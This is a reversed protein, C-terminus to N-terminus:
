VLRIHKILDLFYKKSWITLTDDDDIFRKIDQKAMNIDTNAIHEALLKMLSRKTFYTNQSLHGSKQARLSLHRLNLPYNRGIYWELDYWDRGKVRKKWNRFLLAHLKGAYLNDITFCKVYFSFPQLLLKEETDFGLPPDTDVEFKIKIFKHSHNTQLSLIHIDTNSKLFASEIPTKKSKIKKSIDVNLGFAKFEKSIHMFYPELDFHKDQMLLSFDMNESYRNLQYFLRLATGGYFACKKFFQGRYLGALAIEQLIERLAHYHEYQNPIHYRLLMQDIM